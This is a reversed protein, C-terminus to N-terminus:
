PGGGRDGRDGQGTCWSRTGPRPAGRRRVDRRGGGCGSLQPREARVMAVRYHQLMAWAVKYSVGLTRELTVASLGNKATTLYWAAAFWSTLPTRTQDFVTGARLRAEGRCARCVLRDGTTRWPEGIVGCGRCGGPFRLRELYSGCAAKRPADGRGRHENAPLRGRGRM